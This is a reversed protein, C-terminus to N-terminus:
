RQIRKKGNNQKIRSVYNQLVFIAARERWTQNYNDKEKRWYYAERTNALAPLHKRWTRTPMACKVARKQEIYTQIAPKFHTEIVSDNGQRVSALLLSVDASAILLPFHTEKEWRSYNLHSNRQRFTTQKSTPSIPPM